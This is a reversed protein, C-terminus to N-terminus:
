LQLGAATVYNPHVRSLTVVEGNFTATIWTRAWFPLAMVVLVLGAIGIWALTTEGTAAAGIPLAVSVLSAAVMRTTARSRHQVVEESAPLDIGISRRTVFYAILLPLIGFLLLIWIWAPTHVAQTSITRTAPVGSKACVGGRNLNPVEEARVSVTAM